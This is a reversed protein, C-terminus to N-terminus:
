NHLSDSNHITERKTPSFSTFITILDSNFINVVNPNM